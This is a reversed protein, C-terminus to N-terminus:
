GISFSNVYYADTSQTVLIALQVTCMDGVSVSDLGSSTFVKRIVKYPDITTSVTDVGAAGFEKVNIAGDGDTIASFRVQINDSTGDTLDDQLFYYLTFSLPNDSSYDSSAFWSRFNWQAERALSTFKICDFKVGGSSEFDTSVAPPYIASGTTNFIADQIPLFNEPHKYYNFASNESIYDVFDSAPMIGESFTKIGRWLTYDGSAM